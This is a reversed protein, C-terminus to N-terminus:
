RCRRRSEGSLALLPPAPHAQSLQGQRRCQGSGDGKRGHGLFAQGDVGIVAEGGVPSRTGDDLGGELGFAIALHIEYGDRVAHRQQVAQPEFALVGIGVDHQPEVGVQNDFGLRGTEEDRV